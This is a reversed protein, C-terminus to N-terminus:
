AARFPPHLRGLRGAPPRFGACRLPQRRDDRLDRNSGHCSFFFIVLVIISCVRSNNACLIYATTSASCGRRNTSRTGPSLAPRRAQRLTPLRNGLPRHLSGLRGAPRGDAFWPQGQAHARGVPATSRAPAAPRRLARMRFRDPESQRRMEAIQENVPRGIGAIRRGVTQFAGELTKRYHERIAQIVPRLSGARRLRLEHGTESSLCGHGIRSRRFLRGALDSAASLDVLSAARTDAGEDALDLLCQGGAVRYCSGGCQPGCLRLQHACGGLADNM